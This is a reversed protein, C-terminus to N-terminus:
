ERPPDQAPEAIIDPWHRRDGEPFGIRLRVLRPLYPESWRDTWGQGSAGTPYLYSFHLTAVGVLLVDESPTAAVADASHLHPTWRLVFGQAGDIFLRVDAHRAFRDLVGSPLDTAFSFSAAVGTLQPPTANSGADMHAILDRVVRNVGDLGSRRDLLRTQMRSARVGFDVGQGIEVAIFGFVVLAVLLELLTFGRPAKTM